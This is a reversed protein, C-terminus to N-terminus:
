KFIIEVNSDKLINLSNEIFIPWVEKCSISESLAHFAFDIARQKNNTDYFHKSLKQLISIRFVNTHALTDNLFYFSSNVFKDILGLEKYYDIMFWLYHIDKTKDFERECIALYFETKEKSSRDQMYVKIDLKIINKYNHTLMEHLSYKWESDKKKHIRIKDEIQIFSGDDTKYFYNISFAADNKNNRIKKLDHEPIIMDNKFDLSFCFAEDDDILSLCKNRAKSFDFQDFIEQHVIVGSERLRQISGDTSGTDLVYVADLDKTIELFKDIYEIENKCIAYGIIKNM